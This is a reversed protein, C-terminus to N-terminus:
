IVTVWLLNAIGFRLNGPTPSWETSTFFNVKDDVISPISKVLLFIAVLVVIVIVIGSAGTNLGAFIRDGIRVRGGRGATSSGAGAVPASPVSIGLPQESGIVPPEHDRAHLDILHATRDGHVDPGDHLTENGVRPPELPSDGSNPPQVRDTMTEREPM